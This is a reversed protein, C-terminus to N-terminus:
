KTKEWNKKIKEYIGDLRKREEIDTTACKLLVIGAGMAIYEKKTFKEM